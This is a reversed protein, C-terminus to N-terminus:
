LTARNKVEMSNELTAAGAQKGVLLTLPVGKRWMRELMQQKRGQRNKAMRVPTLHYRLTTKIQTERNALSNSCKKMHSNAMQIDENFFKRNM